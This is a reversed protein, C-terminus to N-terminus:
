NSDLKNYIKDLIVMYEVIHSVDIKTDINSEYPWKVFRTVVLDGNKVEEIFKNSVLRDFIGYKNQTSLPTTKNIRISTTKGPFHEKGVQIYYGGKDKLIFLTNTSDYIYCYGQDTMSDVKCSSNWKSVIEEYKYSGIKKNKISYDISGSGDYHIRYKVGDYDGSEYISINLNGDNPIYSKYCHFKSNSSIPLVSFKNENLVVKFNKSILQSDENEYELTDCKIGQKSLEQNLKSLQIASLKCYSNLSFFVLVYFILKRM